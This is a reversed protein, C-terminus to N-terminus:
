RRKKKTTVKYWTKGIKFSHAPNNRKAFKWWLLGAVGVLV